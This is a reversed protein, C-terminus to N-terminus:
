PREGQCQKRLLNRVVILITCTMCYTRLLFRTPPPQEEELPFVLVTRKTSGHQRLKM